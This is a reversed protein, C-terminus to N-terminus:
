QILRETVSKSLVDGTGEIWDSVLAQLTYPLRSKSKVHWSFFVRRTVANKKKKLFEWDPHFVANKFCLKSKVENKQVKNRGRAKGRGVESIKENIYPVSM